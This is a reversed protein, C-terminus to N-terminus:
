VGPLRIVEIWGDELSLSFKMRPGTGNVNQHTWADDDHFHELADAREEPSIDELSFWQTLLYADDLKSEPVVQAQYADGGAHVLYMPEAPALKWLAAQLTRYVRKDDDESGTGYVAQAVSFVDAPVRTDTWAAPGATLRNHHEIPVLNNTTMTRKRSSHVWTGDAQVSHGQTGPNTTRIMKM